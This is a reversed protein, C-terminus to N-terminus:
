NETLTALVLCFFHPVAVIAIAFLIDGKQRVWEDDIWHWGNGYARCDLPNQRWSDHRESGWWRRKVTANEIEVYEFVEEFILNATQYPLLYTDSQNIVSGGEDGLNLGKGKEGFELVSAIEILAAEANIIGFEDSSPESTENLERNYQKNIQTSPCGFALPLSTLNRLWLEAFTVIDFGYCHPNGSEQVRALKPVIRVGVTLPIGFEDRVQVNV